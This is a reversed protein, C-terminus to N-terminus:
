MHGPLYAGVIQLCGGVRVRSCLLGRKRARLSLSTVSPRRAGVLGYPLAYNAAIYGLTLYLPAIQTRSTWLGPLLRAM